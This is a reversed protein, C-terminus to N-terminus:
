TRLSELPISKGKKKYKKAKKKFVKWAANIEDEKEQEFVIRESKEKELETNEKYLERKREQRVEKMEYYHEADSGQVSREEDERQCICNPNEKIGGESDESNGDCYCEDPELDNDVIQKEEDDLEFLDEDFDEPDCDDYLHRSLVRGYWAPFDPKRKKRHHALSSERGRKGM